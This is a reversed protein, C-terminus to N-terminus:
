IPRCSANLTDSVDAKYAMVATSLCLGSKAQEGTLCSACLWPTSPSRESAGLSAVSDKLWSEMVAVHNQLLFDETMFRPQVLSM